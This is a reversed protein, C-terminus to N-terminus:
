VFPSGSPSPNMNKRDRYHSRGSLVAVGCLLLIYPPAEPIAAIDSPVFAWVGADGSSDSYEDLAIFAHIESVYKWKGFVGTLFAGNPKAGVFNSFVKAHWQSAVTGDANFEERFAVVSSGDWVFFTDLVPDYDLGAGLSLSLELGESTVLDVARAHILGDGEVWPNSLDWYVLDNALQPTSTTRVFLNHKTDIAGAGEYAPAIYDNRGIYEVTDNQSLALNGVTYKYLLPWGTQNDDTTFYFVDNGGESRYATTGNIVSGYNGTLSFRRDQWMSGGGVQTNYGSGSSGGVLNPNALSPNWVYPGTAIVTGGIEARFTGGYPHTAGGLTLFRDNIPLFVSNDYTHASQPASDDPVMFDPGAVASPLSGRKWAGSSGSWVYIENGLYNYHGGGFLILDGRNSDWAFSSWAHVIGAPNSLSSEPVADLGTPWASSFTSTNLQIWSGPQASAILDQIRQVDASFCSTSLTMLGACTLAGIPLRASKRM